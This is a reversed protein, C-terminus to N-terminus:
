IEDEITSKEYVNIRSQITDYYSSAAEYLAANGESINKNLKLMKKYISNLELRAEMIKNEM